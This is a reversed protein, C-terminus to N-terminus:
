NYMAFTSSQQQKPKFYLEKTLMSVICPVQRKGSMSKESANSEFYYAVKRNVITLLQMIELEKGYDNLVQCLTQIFWSGKESNRWSYYGAVTSYCVLFDAEMPIRSVYSVEYPNSDIAEMLNIGRCAQLFFLKPKGALTRNAKFPKLLTEIEIDKDVGFVMNNDGHSLIVCVFCDADSHDQKAYYNMYGRMDEASLNHVLKIDFGLRKLSTELCAADNDTGERTPMDYFKKNNIVIAYGRRQHNMRYEQEDAFRGYSDPVSKPLNEVPLELKSEKQSSSIEIVEPEPHFVKSAKSSVQKSNVDSFVNPEASRSSSSISQAVQNESVQEDNKIIQEPQSLKLKENFLSNLRSFFPSENTTTSPKKPKTSSSSSSTALKTPTTTKGKLLRKTVKDNTPASKKASSSATVLTKPVPAPSASTFKRRTRVSPSSNQSSPHSLNNSESVSSSSASSLKNVLSSIMQSFLSTIKM